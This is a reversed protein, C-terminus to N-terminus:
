GSPGRYGRLKGMTASFSKRGTTQHHGGIPIHRPRITVAGASIPM